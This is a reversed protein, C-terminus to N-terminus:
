NNLKPAYNKIIRSIGEAPSGVWQRRSQTPHRKLAAEPRAIVISDGSGIWKPAQNAGSLPHPRAYIGGEPQESAPLQFAMGESRTGEAMPLPPYPLQVTGMNCCKEYAGRWMQDSRRSLASM